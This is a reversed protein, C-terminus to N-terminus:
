IREGGNYNTIFSLDNADLTTEGWHKKKATLYVFHADEPTNYYGLYMLKGDVRIQAKWKNYGKRKVVGTYGSTNNLHKGKNRNNELSTVFRLNNKRNNLPNRDKHDTEMGKPPKGYIIHHILVNKNKHVDKALLYPEHSNYKQEYWCYDKIKDYDELDFYFERCTNSTWGIGYEGSLDYKNKCHGCSTTNNSKLDRGIVVCINGCTCQCEWRAHHKGSKPEIYDDVQKLVILKSNPIGHEWMNWGSMDEKVKVM